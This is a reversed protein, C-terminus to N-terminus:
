ELRGTYARTEHGEVAHAFFRDEADTRAKDWPGAGGVAQWAWFKLERRRWDMWCEEVLIAVTVGCFGKTQSCQMYPSDLTLPRKSAVDAYGIFRTETRDGQQLVSIGGAIEGSDVYKQLAERVDASASIAAVALCFALKANM